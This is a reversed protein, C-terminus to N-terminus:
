NAQERTYNLLGGAQVTARERVTMRTLTRFEYGKTINKITVPQDTQLCELLGNIELRDNQDLKDYDEPNEFFLPLIGFNILNDRHIRAFSRAIVVKIGLYMPVLAAHERSSGQGYNERGVIFGGGAERARAPFTPDVPYFVFNSMEPINSRFALVKSGAMMIHDTTINDGVKLLVQGTTNAAPPTAISLPKINPGREIQVQDPEISPSIIMNDDPSYSEPLAIHPMDGLVRPDTLKGYVATAAATEPSVLYISADKTGSRGAFNRNSTRVSVAGSAPAQGAGICPGCTCELIRAVAGVLDALAGNDALLKLVQRSGPAVVLSVAPHVTQGKLIAAARMLDLYSSNTCSGIMVQNVALDMVENVKAVQDPMHPKAVMPELTGLDIEMVEDYAADEDPGLVIWGNERGQARMFARTVEDSPFISYTAGTEAGMNTITGREPVSLCDIGDGTYELVKGVGGKVTMRRLVELVVDKASVWPSLKGHLKVNVVKPMTLHFPGGGMAVAVNLGGVGIALSGLGGATPTHSDAGLLTKGPLGFRELHLQHCIGNGARSYYAGYKASMGQLFRHDDANEFGNQLTNHDVYTVSLETKIKPIGIAEFQLFAMTGTADQVLTQDVKIAIEQGPILEGSLLHNSLIKQTMNYGM